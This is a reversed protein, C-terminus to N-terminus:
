GVGGEGGKSNTRKFREIKITHAWEIATKSLTHMTHKLEDIIGLKDLTNQTHEKYITGVVGLLVPVIECQYGQETLINRLEKHQEYAAQLQYEPDIDRCQKFEIILIKLTPDPARLKKPNEIILADPKYKTQAKKREATTWTQPLLWEPIMHPLPTGNATLKDLKGLDAMQLYTGKRGQTIAKLIIRGLTHHRETRLEEMAPCGLM